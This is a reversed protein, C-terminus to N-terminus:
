GVGKRGGKYEEVDTLPAILDADIHTGPEFGGRDDPENAHDGYFVGCSEECEIVVREYTLKLM